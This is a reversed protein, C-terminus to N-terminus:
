PKKAPAPSAAPSPAPAAAPAAQDTTAPVEPPIPYAVTPKKNALDALTLEMAREIPVKVIGKDKDVWAYGHLAKDAEERVAKLKEMRAEARKQEFNDGRPMIGIVAWAILAFVAFLLVIGLWAGFGSRPQEFSIETQNAM